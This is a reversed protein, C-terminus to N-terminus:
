GPWVRRIAAVLEDVSFPKVLVTSPSGDPLFDTAGGTTLGTMVIVPLDSGASRSRLTSYVQSGSMDPMALDICVIDFQMDDCAALAEVGGAVVRPRHGISRLMEGAVLRVPADDDVVLINLPDPRGVRLKGQRFLHRVVASRDVPGGTREVVANSRISVFGSVTYAVM